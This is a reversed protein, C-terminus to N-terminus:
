QYRSVWCQCKALRHGLEIDIAHLHVVNSIHIVLLNSDQLQGNLKLNFADWRGTSPMNDIFTTHLERVLTMSDFFLFPTIVVMLLSPTYPYIAQESTM